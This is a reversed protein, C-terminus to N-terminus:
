LVDSTLYDSEVAYTLTCQDDNKDELEVGLTM